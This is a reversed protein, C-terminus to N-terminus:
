AATVRAQPARARVTTAEETATSPSCLAPRLLQLECARARLDTTTAHPMTAGLRTPKGPGPMLGVDGASAPPNRDVTGGSFDLFSAKFGAITYYPSLLIFAPYSIQLTKKVELGIVM